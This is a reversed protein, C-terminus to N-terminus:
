RPGPCKRFKDTTNNRFGSPYAISVDQDQDRYYANTKLGLEGFPMHVPISVLISSLM